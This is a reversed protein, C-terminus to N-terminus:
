LRGMTQLHAGKLGNDRRAVSLLLKEEYDVAEDWTPGVSKSRAAEVLGRRELPSLSLASALERAIAEVDGLPALRLAPHDRIDDFSPLDYAVTPLGISLAERVALGFHEMCSPALFVISDALLSWKEDDTPLPGGLRVADHLKLTEGLAKAREREKSPGDGRLELYASPHISRALAFARIADEFGKEPVLRSLFLVRDGRDAQAPSISRDVGTLGTVVQGDFGEEFLAKAVAPSIVITISAEAL